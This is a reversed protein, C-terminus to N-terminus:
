GPEFMGCIAALTLGQGQQVQDGAGIGAILPKCLEGVVVGFGDGREAAAQRGQLTSDAIQWCWGGWHIGGRNGIDQGHGLGGQCINGLPFGNRGAGILAQVPGLCTAGFGQGGDAWHHPLVPDSCRLERRCDWCRSWGGWRGPRNRQHFDDAIFERQQWVPSNVFSTGAGRDM